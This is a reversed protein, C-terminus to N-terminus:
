FPLDDSIEAEPYPEDIPSNIKEEITSTTSTTAASQTSDDSKRGLLQLSNAVIETIYRKNGDKDDYSRSRIRGEVYVQSGKKVYKSAFDALARWLVVNHWETTTIREGAKNLYTESTAVPITCTATGNELYRVEPDRGVNGILIVKNVSM